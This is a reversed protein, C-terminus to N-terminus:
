VTKPTNEKQYEQRAAKDWLVTQKGKLYRVLGKYLSINIFLFYYPIYLLKNKINRESLIWGAVAMLYFAIQACLVYLYLQEAGMIVLLINFLLILPLLFPCVAWRLVRHSIYQFSLLPYRFINLLDRLMWMSQFGGASIRIKRKEEEKLSASPNELAYAEPEYTVKYGKRCIRLSIVFDDLLVDNGVHEYLDTRISFLEGAAGVVSYLESDKKKLFSEYKWYIGEGTGAAKDNRTRLIKKEGAVGGVKPDSYHRTINLIAEKNLLTNADSFIVVPSDILAMTRNIAAVKGKRQDSHLVRVNEFASALVPTADTSGDTVVIVKLKGAPYELALTNRLKEEIFAEENYAAIILTVVPCDQDNYATHPIKGQFLHKIKVLLAVLFGYGLYSYFVVFISVWFLLKLTFM